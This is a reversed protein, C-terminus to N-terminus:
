AYEIISTIIVNVEKKWKLRLYKEVSMNKSELSTLKSWNKGKVQNRCDM